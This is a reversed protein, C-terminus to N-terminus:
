LIIDSYVKVSVQKELLDFIEKNLIRDYLGQQMSKTNSKEDKSQIGSKFSVFIISLPDDFVEVQVSPQSKAFLTKVQDPKLSISSRVGDIRNFKQNKILQLGYTSVLQSLKKESNINSEIEKKVTNVLKKADEKRSKQILETAIKNKYDEFKALKEKKHGEVYIIHHGFSSKVPKSITGVKTAFAVKEFAPDMMGRNFWGLSGGKGKASPDKSHKEALKAFNKPTAKKFLSDIEKKANKDSSPILIHSAKLQEKKDYQSRTNEFVKKASDLNKPDKLYKEIDSSSVILHKYMENKNLKVLDAEIINKKIDDIESVFKNSVPFSQLLPTSQKVLLDDKINKEFQSPTYSNAALLNKYRNIDFQDNTKFYPLGKIEKKVESPSPIVGMEHAFEMLLKRQVLQRITNEKIRFQEIQKRTLDKGGLMNSYFQLQGQYANQYEAVKITHSGVTAITDPTGRMSEYGSFMFSIIIVGIFAALIFSSTKKQM